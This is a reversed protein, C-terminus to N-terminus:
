GLYRLTQPLLLVFLVMLVIIIAQRKKLRQAEEHKEICAPGCWREGVDVIKGCVECHRHDVLQSM